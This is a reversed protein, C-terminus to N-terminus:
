IDGIRKFGEVMLFMKKNSASPNTRKYRFLMSGDGVFTRDIDFTFTNGELYAQAIVERTGGIGWDVEFFGSLGDNISEDAFTIRKIHWIRGSPPVASLATDTTLTTVNGKKVVHIRDRNVKTM